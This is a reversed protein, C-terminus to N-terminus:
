GIAGSSCQMLSIQTLNNFAAAANGGNFVTIRPWMESRSVFGDIIRKEGAGCHTLCPSAAPNYGATELRWCFAAVAVEILPHSGMGPVCPGVGNLGGWAGFVLESFHLYIIEPESFRRTANVCCGVSDCVFNVGVKWFNETIFEEMQNFLQTNHIQFHAGHSKHEATVQKGLNARLNAIGNTNYISAFRIDFRPSSFLPFILDQFLDQPFHIM